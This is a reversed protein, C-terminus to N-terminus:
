SLGNRTINALLEPYSSITVSYLTNHIIHRGEYVEEFQCDIALHTEHIGVESFYKIM